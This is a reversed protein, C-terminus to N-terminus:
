RSQCLQSEVQAVYERCMAVVQLQEDDLGDDKGTELALHCRTGEESAASPTSDSRYGPCVEKLALSSPSHEAHPRDEVPAPIIETM